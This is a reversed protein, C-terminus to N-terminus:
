ENTRGPRNGDGSRRPMWHSVSGCHGAFDRGSSRGQRKLHRHPLSHGCRRSRHPLWRRGAPAPATGRATVGRFPWCAEADTTDTDRAEPDARFATCRSGQEGTGHLLRHCRATKLIGGGPATRMTLL